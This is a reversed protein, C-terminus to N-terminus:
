DEEDEIDLWKGKMSGEKELQQTGAVSCDTENKYWPYNWLGKTLTHKWVKAKAKSSFNKEVMIFSPETRYNDIQVINQIDQLARM